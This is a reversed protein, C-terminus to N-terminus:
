KLALMAVGASVWVWLVLGQHKVAEEVEPLRLMARSEDINSRLITGNLGLARCM